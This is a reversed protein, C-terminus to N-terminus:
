IIFIPKSVLDVWLQSSQSKCLVSGAERWASHVLRWSMSITCWVCKFIAMYASVHLTSCCCSFTLCHFSILCVSQSATPRLTVKVKSQVMRNRFFIYVPCRARWTPPPNFYRWRLGALRLLRRLPFGTGPPIVPGGQEQPIYICFGPGGPQPLRLYSLLTLNRTRLSECWQTIANWFASGDERWLPLGMSVSCWNGSGFEQFSLLIHDFTWLTPEVGVCVSQSVTLRLTVRVWLSNQHQQVNGILFYLDLGLLTKPRQYLHLQNTISSSVALPAGVLYDYKHYQKRGVNNGTHNLHVVWPNEQMRSSSTVGEESERMVM